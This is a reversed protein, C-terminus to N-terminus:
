HSIMWPRGAPFSKAGNRGRRTRRRSTGSCCACGAGHRQKMQSLTSPANASRENTAHVLRREAPMAACYPATLFARPAAEGCRPCDKPLDCEAMPRMETFPGCGACLYDYVPM